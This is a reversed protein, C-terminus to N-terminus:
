FLNFAAVADALASEPSKTSRLYKFTCQPAVVNAKIVRQLDTLSDSDEQAPARYEIHGAPVLWTFTFSELRPLDRPSDTQDEQVDFIHLLLHVRRISAPLMVMLTVPDSTGGASLILTELRHFGELLDCVRADRSSCRDFVVQRLDLASLDSANGEMDLIMNRLFLATKSSIPLSGFYGWTGFYDDDYIYLVRPAAPDIRDDAETLKLVTQLQNSQRRM